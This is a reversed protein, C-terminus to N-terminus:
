TYLQPWTFPVIALVVAHRYYELRDIVGNTLHGVTGGGQKNNISGFIKDDADGLEMGERVLKSIIPPLLFSATRSSHLREGDCVAIWAFCELGEHISDGVGGELGVAYTPLSNTIKKHEDFTRKARNEAGELTETDGFPQNSVGSDIPYSFIELDATPINLVAMFGKVVAAIKVPNTSGIAVTVM